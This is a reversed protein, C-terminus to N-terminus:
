RGKPAPPRKPAGAPGADHVALRVVVRDGKKIGKVAAPPLRLDVEGDAIKLTLTGRSENITTVEGGMTRTADGSAAGPASTGPPAAVASGVQLVLTAIVLWALGKQMM